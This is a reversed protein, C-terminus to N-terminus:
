HPFQILIQMKVLQPLYTQLAQGFLWLLTALLLLAPIGAVVAKILFLALRGFPVDLAHVSTPVLGDVGPQSAIPRTLFSPPALAIDAARDRRTRERAEHDREERERAQRERLQRERAERARLVTRPLDDPGGDPVTLRPELM